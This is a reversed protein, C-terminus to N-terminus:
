ICWRVITPSPPRTKCAATFRTPKESSKTDFPNPRKGAGSRAAPCFARLASGTIPFRVRQGPQTRSYVRRRIRRRSSHKDRIIHTSVLPRAADHFLLVDGDRCRDKLASLASFASDTRQEGPLAFCLPTRLCADKAWTRIDMQRSHDAVICLLDIDECADFAAMSWLLVPKGLLPRFQKPAGAGQMRTGRGGALICAVNM